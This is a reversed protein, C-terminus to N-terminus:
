AGAGSSQQKAAALRHHLLKMLEVESSGDEPYHVAAWTATAGSTGPMEVTSLGQRMKGLVVVLGEANVETLLLAFRDALYRCVVDNTRLGMKLVDAVRRLLEDGADAGMTRNLERLGRLDLMILGFEKKHRRSRPIEQALASLFYRQNYLGTLPDLNAVRRLQESLQVNRAATACVDATAQAITRDDVTFFGPREHALVLVGMVEGMSVLPACLESGAGEFCAPWRGRAAVDNAVVLARKANAEGLLGRQRSAQFLDPVIPWDGAHAQVSVGGDPLLMVIAIQTDEFTDSVLEALMSFLQQTDHAGAASRAILNITEIQRTRRLDNSYLRANELAIAAQDTLVSLLSIAERDFADVTGSCVELVGLPRDRVLMPLALVSMVGGGPSPHRSEKSLDSIYLPAGTFAAWGATSEKGIALRRNLIEVEYGNQARCYLQKTAEDVLYVACRSAGFYNRVVLLMHHLVTDADLSSLIMQTAQQLVAVDRVSTHVPTLPAQKSLTSVNYRKV